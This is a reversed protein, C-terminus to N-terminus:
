KGNKLQEMEEVVKATGERSFRRGVLRHSALFQAAADVGQNFAARSIDGAMAESDVYGLLRGLDAVAEIARPDGGCLGFFKVFPWLQAGIREFDALRASQEDATSKGSFLM